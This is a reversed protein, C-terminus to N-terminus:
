QSMLHDLLDDMSKKFKAMKDEPRKDLAKSAEEGTTKKETKHHSEDHHTPATAKATGDEDESESRPEEDSISEESGPKSVQRSSNSDQSPSRKRYAVRVSRSRDNGRGIVARSPFTKLREGDSDTQSGSDTSFQPSASAHQVISEEPDAMKTDHESLHAENGDEDSSQVMATSKYREDDYTRKSRRARTKRAPRPKTASIDIVERNPSSLSAPPETGSSTRSREHVSESSETRPEINKPTGFPSSSQWDDQVEDADEIEVVEGAEDEELENHVPSGDKHASPFSQNEVNLRRSAKKVWTHGDWGLEPPSSELEEDAALFALHGTEGLSQELAEELLVSLALLATGDMSKYHLHKRQINSRGYLLSVYRHVTELLDNPPIPGLDNIGVYEDEEALRKRAGKRSFLVDDPPVPRTSSSATDRDKSYVPETALFGNRGARGAVADYVSVKRRKSWKEANKTAM